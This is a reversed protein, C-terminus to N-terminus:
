TASRRPWCRTASWSSGCAPPVCCRRTSTPTCGGIAGTAPAMPHATGVWRIPFSTAFLNDYAITLRRVADALGDRQGSTLEPLRAVDFRPLLLTEFPWAAWWPVIALWDPTEEVVREGGAEREALNALMSRGLANRYARQTRDETAPLDPLHDSAWIQGHPHPNSCGMAAGKNEFLQVWRHERGLEASQDCWAEVVARVGAPPLDPLTASHDPSFCLVRATGAVPESRQLPDESPEGSSNPLLAPFDNPFVYTGEYEPNVEGSTRANGPCLYCDPDHAPGRPEPAEEEGQWPRSLRQPSM